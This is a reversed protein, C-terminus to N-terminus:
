GGPKGVREVLLPRGELPRVVFGAAALAATANPLEKVREPAVHPMVYLPLASFWEARARKEKLTAGPRLGMVIEDHSFRKAVVDPVPQLVAFFRRLAARVDRSSDENYPRLEEGFLAGLANSPLDDPHAEMPYTWSLGAEYDPGGEKRWQEMLAAPREKTGAAVPIALGLFHVVDVPGALCTIVYRDSVPTSAMGQKLAVERILHLRDTLRRAQAWGPQAAAAAM